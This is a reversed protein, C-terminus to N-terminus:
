RVSLVDEPRKKREPIEPPPLPESPKAPVPQGSLLRKLDCPIFEALFSNSHYVTVLKELALILSLLIAPALAQPDGLAM